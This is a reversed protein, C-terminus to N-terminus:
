LATAGAVMSSGPSTTSRDPSPPGHCVLCCVLGPRQCENPMWAWAAAVSATGAVMRYPSSSWRSHGSSWQVVPGSPWQTVSFWLRAQRDAQVFPSGQATNATCHLTHPASQRGGRSHLVPSASFVHVHLASTFIVLYRLYRSARWPQLAVSAHSALSLYM